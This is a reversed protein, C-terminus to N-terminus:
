EALEFGMEAAAPDDQAAPLRFMYPLFHVPQKERMKANARDHDFGRFAPV